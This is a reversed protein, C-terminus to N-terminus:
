ASIDQTVFLPVQIQPFELVAGSVQQAHLQLCLVTVRAQLQVFMATQAYTVNLKLNIAMLMQTHALLVIKHHPHLFQVSNELLAYVVM